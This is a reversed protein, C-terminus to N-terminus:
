ETWGELRRELPTVIRPHHANPWAVVVRGRETADYEGLWLKPRLWYEIGIMVKTDTEGILLGGLSHETRPSTFRHHWPIWGANATALTQLVSFSSNLMAPTKAGHFLLLKDCVVLLLIGAHRGWVRRWWRIWYIQGFLDVCFGYSNELEGAETPTQLM